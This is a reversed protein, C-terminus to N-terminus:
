PKESEMQIIRGQTHAIDVPSSATASEMSALERRTAELLGQRAVTLTSNTAVHIDKLTRASRLQLYITVGTTAVTCLAVVVAAVAILATNM